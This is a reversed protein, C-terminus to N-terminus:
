EAFCTLSLTNGDPDNFWAVQDGGPTSWIGREDQDMGEYRICEVGRSELSDISTGMDPVQWGAITFPQPQLDDVQALRLMTGGADLVVAYPGEERVPLGLVDGYFSQAARLNRVPIFATLPRDGLVQRDYGNASGTTGWPVPHTATGVIPSVRVPTEPLAL